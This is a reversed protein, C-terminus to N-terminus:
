CGSGRHHVIPLMLPHWAVATCTGIPLVWGSFAGHDLEFERYDTRALTTPEPRVSLFQVKPPMTPALTIAVEAEGARLEDDVCM